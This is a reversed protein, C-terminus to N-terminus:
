LGGFRQFFSADAEPTAADERRLGDVIHLEAQAQTLRYMARALAYAQSGPWPEPLLEVPLMPDHLQVRRYAHILLTRVHVGAGAGAARGSWCTLWPRFQTSSAATAPVVASLDWGERVLERLPRGSM